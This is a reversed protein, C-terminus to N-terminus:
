SEGSAGLHFCCPSAAMRADATATTSIAPPCPVRSPVDAGFPQKSTPNGDPLLKNWSCASRIERSRTSATLEAHGCQELVNFQLAVSIDDENVVSEGDDSLEDAVLVVGGGM